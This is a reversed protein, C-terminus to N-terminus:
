RITVSHIHLVNNNIAIKTIFTVFKHIEYPREKNEKIRVENERPFFYPLYICFYFPTKKQTFM